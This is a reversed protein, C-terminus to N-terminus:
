GGALPRLAELPHQQGTLFPRLTHSPSPLTHPWSVCVLRPRSTLEAWGVLGALWPSTRADQVWGSCGEAPEWFGTGKARM